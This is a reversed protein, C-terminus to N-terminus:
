KTRICSFVSWYFSRIQVSGATYAKKLTMEMLSKGHCHEEEEEEDKKM